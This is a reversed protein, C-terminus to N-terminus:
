KRTMIRLGTIIIAIAILLAFIWGFEFTYIWSLAPPLGAINKLVVEFIIVLGILIIIIGWFIPAGHKGGACEEECRKDWDKEYDKKAGTLSAGCKSCYEADDENKKGCKACYAM